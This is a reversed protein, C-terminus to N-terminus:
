GKEEQHKPLGAAEWNFSESFSLSSPRALTLLVVLALTIDDEDNNDFDCHM